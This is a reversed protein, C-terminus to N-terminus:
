RYIRDQIEDKKIEVSNYRKIMFNHFSKNHDSIYFYFEKKDPQADAWMDLITLIDRRPVTKSVFFNYAYNKISWLYAITSNNERLYCFNHQRNLRTVADHINWMGDWQHEQYFNKIASDLIRLTTENIFSINNFEVGPRLLSRENRREGKYFIDNLGAEEIM